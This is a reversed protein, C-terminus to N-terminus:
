GYKLHKKAAHGESIKAALRLQQMSRIDIACLGQGMSTKSLTLTIVRIAVCLHKSNAAHELQWSGMVTVSLLLYQKGPEVTPKQLHKKICVSTSLSADEQPDLDVWQDTQM